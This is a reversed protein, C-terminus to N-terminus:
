PPLDQLEPLERLAPWEDAIEGWTVTGIRTSFKRRQDESIHPWGASWTGHRYGELLQIEHHKLKGEHCLLVCYEKGAREALSWVAEVNRALQDRTVDWEISPDLWDNRKGEIWIFTKKCEILCDCHTKGELIFRPRPLVGSRLTSLAKDIEIRDAVRDRFERWRRGDRPALKETNELMWALRTFTPHVKYEPDLHIKVIAGCHDPREKVGHAIAVLRDPWSTGVHEQLWRFVPQVRSNKSNTDRETVVQERTLETALGAHDHHRLSPGVTELIVVPGYQVLVM